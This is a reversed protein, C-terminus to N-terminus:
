FSDLLDFKQPIGIRRKYVVMIMLYRNEKKIGGYDYLYISLMTNTITLVFSNPSKGIDMKM